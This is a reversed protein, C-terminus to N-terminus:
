LSAVALLKWGPITQDEWVRIKDKAASCSHKRRFTKTKRSNSCSQDIQSPADPAELVIGPDRQRVEGIVEPGILTMEIVRVLSCSGPRRHTEVAIVHAFAVRCVAIPIDRTPPHRIAALVSVIGAGQPEQESM